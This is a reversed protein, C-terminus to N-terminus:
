DQDLRSGNLSICGFSSEEESRVVVVVGQQQTRGAKKMESCNNGVVIPVASYAYHRCISKHGVTTRAREDEPERDRDMKNDIWKNSGENDLCLYPIRRNRIGGDKVPVHEVYTSPSFVSPGFDIKVRWSTLFVLKKRARLTKPDRPPNASLDLCSHSM